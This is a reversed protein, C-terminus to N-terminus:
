VTARRGAAAIAGISFLCAIFPQGSAAFVCAALFLITTM